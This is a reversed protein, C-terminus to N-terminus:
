ADLFREFYGRVLALFDPDIAIDMVVRGEEVRPVEVNLAPTLYTDIVARVRMSADLYALLDRPADELPACAMTLDADLCLRTADDM